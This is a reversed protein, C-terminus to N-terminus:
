ALHPADREIKFSFCNNYASRIHLYAIHKEKFLDASRCAIQDPPILCGKGYVIKDNANYAKLLVTERAMIGTPLDPTNAYRDCTKAHLFIPGTEAYPQQKPFPMYSLVLYNEGATVNELCHRCPIGSGNSVYQKAINGYADPGGSQIERVDHTPLPIIKISM